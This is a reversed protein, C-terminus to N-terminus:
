AHATQVAAFKAGAVAEYYDFRVGVGSRAKDATGNVRVVKGICHWEVGVSGTIAKPMEVRIHIVAGEPPPTDTEFYVGSESLNVSDVRREDELCKWKRIYLPVHIPFRLALRRDSRKM